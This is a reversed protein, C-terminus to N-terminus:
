LEWPPCGLGANDVKVWFLYYTKLCGEQAGRVMCWLPSCIGSGLYCGADALLQSLAALVINTLHLMGKLFREM